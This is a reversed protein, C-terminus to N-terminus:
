LYVFDMFIELPTFLFCFNIKHNLSIEALSTSKTPPFFAEKPSIIPFSEFQGAFSAGPQDESVGSSRVAVETNQGHEKELKRYTKIIEKRLDEPFDAKLILARSEKGTEQLSKISKSNFKAFIEKLKKDIKNERLFHWYARTTLAFGNPISIGKKTLSRQMEGLSANKGGVLAVDKSNIEKFWLIFKKSKIPM